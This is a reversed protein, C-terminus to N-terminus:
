SISGYSEKNKWDKVPVLDLLRAFGQRLPQRIACSKWRDVVFPNQKLMKLPIALHHEGLFFASCGPIPFWILAEHSKGLIVHDHSPSGFRFLFLAYLIAWETWTIIIIIESFRMYSIDSLVFMQYPFPLKLIDGGRGQFKVTITNLRTKSRASIDTKDVVEQTPKSPRPKISWCIELTIDFLLM